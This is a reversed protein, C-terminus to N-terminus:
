FVNSIECFWPTGSIMCIFQMLYIDQLIHKILYTKRSIIYLYNRQRYLMVDGNM